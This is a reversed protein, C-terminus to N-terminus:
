VLAYLASIGVVCNVLILMMAFYKLKSRSYITLYISSLHGVWPMVYIFFAPLMGGSLKILPQVFQVIKPFYGGVCLEIGLIPSFPSVTAIILIITHKLNTM